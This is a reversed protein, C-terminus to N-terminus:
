VMGRMGNVGVAKAYIDPHELLWKGDQMVQFTYYKNKIDKNVTTVWTGKLVKTMAITRIAEGGDGADYLRLKVESAKPAWVKFVTKTPSYKVGLDNGPYVPYNNFPGAPQAVAAFKLMTIFLFTLIFNSYKM